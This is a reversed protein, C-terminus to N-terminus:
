KSVLINNSVDFTLLCKDGIGIHLFLTKTEITQIFNLKKKENILSNFVNCM